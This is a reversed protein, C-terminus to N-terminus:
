ISIEPLKILNIIENRETRFELTEVGLYIATAIDCTGDQGGVQVNIIYGLLIHVDRERQPCYRDTHSLGCPPSYVTLFSRRPRPETTAQHSRQFILIMHLCSEPSRGRGDSGM